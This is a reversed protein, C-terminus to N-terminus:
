MTAPAALPTMLWPLCAYGSDGLIFGNIDGDEMLEYLASRRLVRSDYVSGPWRAVVNRILYNSDVLIQVNISHYGKRDIYEELNESPAIIKVHTGYTNWGRMWNCKSIRKHCPLRGQDKLFIISYM